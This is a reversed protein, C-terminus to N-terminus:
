DFSISITVPNAPDTIDVIRFGGYMTAFYAYAGSIVVKTTYGYNLDNWTHQIPMAPNSFDWVKLGSPGTAFFAYSKFFAVLGNPLAPTTVEMPATPESIDLMVASPNDMYSATALLYNESIFLRQVGINNPMTYTNVLQPKHPKSIDFVNILGDYFSDTGLLNEAVFAYDDHVAIASVMRTEATLKFSPLPQLQISKRPRYNGTEILTSPDSVDLVQFGDRGRPIYAHDYIMVADSLVFSPSSKCFVEIPNQPNSIDFIRLGNGTLYAYNGLVEISNVTLSIFSVTQPTQPDSIDVIRFSTHTGLYAYNDRVVISNITDNDNDESQGIEEYPTVGGGIPNNIQCVVKERLSSCSIALLVCMVIFFLRFLILDISNRSLTRNHRISDPLNEELPTGKGRWKLFCESSAM